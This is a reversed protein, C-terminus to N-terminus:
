VEKKFEKLKNYVKLFRIKYSPQNSQKFRVYYRLAVGWWYDENGEEKLPTYVKSFGGEYKDEKVNKSVIKKMKEFTTYIDSYAVGHQQLLWALAYLKANRQSVLFPHTGCRKNEYMVFTAILWDVPEKEYRSIFTKQFGKRPTPLPAGNKYDNLIRRQRPIYEILEENLDLDM